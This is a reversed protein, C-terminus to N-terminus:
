NKWPNVPDHTRAGRPRALDGRWRKGSAVAVALTFPYAAAFALAFAAAFAFPFAFALAFPLAFAFAAAVAFPFALALREGIPM